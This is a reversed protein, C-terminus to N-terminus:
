KKHTVTQWGDADQKPAKRKSERRGLGGQVRSNSRYLGKSNATTTSQESLYSDSRLRGSTPSDIQTILNMPKECPDHSFTIHINHYPSGKMRSKELFRERILSAIASSSFVVTAIVM